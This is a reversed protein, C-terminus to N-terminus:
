LPLNHTAENQEGLTLDSVKKEVQRCGQASETISILLVGEMVVMARGSTKRVETNRM